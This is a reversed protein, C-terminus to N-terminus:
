YGYSGRAWDSERPEDHDEEDEYRYSVGAKGRSAYSCAYGASDVDHDEGGDIPVEPDGPKSQVTPLYRILNTCTDFVNFGPVKTREDHDKLRTVIRQFNDKRSKKDSPVWPVGAELFSEAKSKGEDGRREWLQSDAPGNCRSTKSKEDWLGFGREIREVAKAVELATQGKFSFEKFCWLNDEEDMAWWHIVGRKKYGWDMSRFCPWHSPIQFKRCVHLNKDWSDAFYADPTAYWDGELFAAREYRGATLLTGEYQRQFNENPNDTLKGPWYIYDHIYKEGTSRVLVNKITVRGAPAPDVFKTRVWYPDSVMYNEGDSRAVMPNSMSRIKLWPFKGSADEQGLVVDSSRLRTCIGEYQAKEFTVLEDFLLMSFEFSQYQMWDDRDMCHGFQYKYGSSFEWGMGMTASDKVFRAGPDIKPFWLLSRSISLALEKYTRRLHLAWGTSEGWRLPHPHDTRRYCRDHELAIQQLPEWLLM